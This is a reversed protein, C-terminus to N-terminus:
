VLEFKSISRTKKLSEQVKLQADIIRLYRPDMISFEGKIFACELCITQINKVHYGYEPVILDLAGGDFSIDCYPCREM